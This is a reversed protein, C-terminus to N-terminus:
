VVGNASDDTPVHICDEAVLREQEAIKPHSLIKDLILSNLDKKMFKVPPEGDIELTYWAGAQKLIGEGALMEVLGSYPNMGREYPVEIEIKSGLKAFRSKYAEARMRIGVVETEEKLKLKTLLAIQSASYKVVNSVIYVGEGNMVDQNLFVQHTAIFTINLRSIRTTVTRLLHKTLKARQGQDGTQVGKEFKENEGDTLLMDLSDVLIVVKPADPNDKGYTKEYGTIFESLVATVDQITVVGVYSLSDPDVKVDLKSMFTKDLANESDLVLIYAGDKQAERLINCALFSKGSGSPGALVTVRSQPVGRLYSGSMIRNLTFNGTHYWHKPPSFDTTISEMKELKKNFDKLFTLSM